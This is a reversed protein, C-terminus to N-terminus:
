TGRVDGSATGGAVRLGRQEVLAEWSGSGTSGLEVRPGDAAATGLRARALAALAVALADAADVPTPARDLGLQATVLRTVGDKDAAGDGTVSAKVDTPTLQVVPIGAQAAALLAIGAAQATGFATRVNRQFLVREVAVLGPRHTDLLAGIARHIALLRQELPDQSPTTVCTHHVHVPRAPPGEVVGVGCRTLGPDVGLM